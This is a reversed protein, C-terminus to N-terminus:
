TYEEVNFVMLALARRSFTDRTHQVSVSSMLACWRKLAREREGDKEREFRSVIIKRLALLLSSFLVLFGNFFFFRPM